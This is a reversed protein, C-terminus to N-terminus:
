MKPHNIILAPYWMDWINHVYGVTEKANKSGTVKALCPPVIDQYESLNNCLKQAKLINGGGANYNALALKYRSEQTRNSGWFRYQQQMYLAAALINAQSEWVSGDVQPYRKQLDKYTLPMFQCLGQAGAPSEAGLILRSEQYCQAKLLRWDPIPLLYQVAKFEKDFTDPFVQWSYGLPCWVLAFWLALYRLVLSCRTFYYNITLIQMEQKAEM